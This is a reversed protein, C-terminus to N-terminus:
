LGRTLRSVSTNLATAIAILASLSPTRAGDEYAYISKPSLNSRSALEEVSWVLKTRSARVAQGIASKWGIEKTGM